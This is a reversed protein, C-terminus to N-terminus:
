LMNLKKFKKVPYVNRDTAEKGVSQMPVLQVETYQNRGRHQAAPATMKPQLRELPPPEPPELPLEPRELLPPDPPELSATRAAGTLFIFLGGFSPRSRLVICYALLPEHNTQMTAM